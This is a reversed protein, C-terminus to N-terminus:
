FYRLIINKHNKLVKFHDIISKSDINAIIKIKTNITMSNKLFFVEM